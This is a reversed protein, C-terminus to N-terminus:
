YHQVKPKFGNGLTFTIDNKRLGLVKEGGQVKVQESM